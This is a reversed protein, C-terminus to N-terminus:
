ESPRRRGCLPDKLLSVLRGVLPHDCLLVAVGSTLHEAFQVAVEQHTTSPEERQLHRRDIEVQYDTELERVRRGLAM